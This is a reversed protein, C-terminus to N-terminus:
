ADFQNPGRGFWNIRYLTGWLWFALDYRWIAPLRGAPTSWSRFPFEKEGFELKGVRGRDQRLNILQVDGQQKITLGSQYIENTATAGDFLLLTGNPVYALTAFFHDRCNILLEAQCGQSLRGFASHTACAILDIHAASGTAYSWDPNVRGLLGDLKEFYGHWGRDFNV